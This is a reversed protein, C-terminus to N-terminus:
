NLKIEKLYKENPKNESFKIKKIDKTDSLNKFEMIETKLKQMAGQFKSVHNM